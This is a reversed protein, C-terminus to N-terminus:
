KFILPMYTPYGPVFLVHNLELPDIAAGALQAKNPLSGTVEGTVTVLYTMIIERSPTLPGQWRLVPQQTDDVTGATATFSDTVYALGGPLTDTLRLNQSKLSAINNLKITYTVTDGPEARSASSM